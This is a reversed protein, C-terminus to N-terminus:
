REYMTENIHRIGAMSAQISVMCNILMASGILLGSRYQFAATLDGFTLAGRTIWRSSVILLALYGGLGFPFIGIATNLANRRLIKMKARLLEMSSEEFRKMFYNKGDYLASIDASTIIVTLDGTNNAM